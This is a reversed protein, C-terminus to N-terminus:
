NLEDIDINNSSSDSRSDNTSDNASNDSKDYDSYRSQCNRTYRKIIKGIVAISPNNTKINEYKTQPIVHKKYQFLFFYSMLSLGLYLETNSTLNKIHETFNTVNDMQQYDFHDFDHIINRDICIKNRTEEKSHNVMITYDPFYEDSRMCISFRYKRYSNTKHQSQVVFGPNTDQPTKYSYNINFSHVKLGPENYVMISEQVDKEIVGKIEPTFPLNALLDKINHTVKDKVIASKLTKGESNLEMIESEITNMVDKKAKIAKRVKALSETKNM